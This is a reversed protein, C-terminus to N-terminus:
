LKEDLSSAKVIAVSGTHEQQVKEGYKKPNEKSSQWKFADHKLRALAVSQSTVAMLPKGDPGTIPVDDIIVPVRAINEIDEWHEDFQYDKSFQRARTYQDLFSVLIDPADKEGAKMLWHFVTSKNPMGEEQCVKRLSGLEILRSCIKDSMDETLIPPRGPKKEEKM